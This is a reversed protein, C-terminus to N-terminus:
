SGEVRLDPGSSDQLHNNVMPDSHSGLILLFIPLCLIQLSWVVLLLPMSSKLPGAIFVSNPDEVPLNEPINISVSCQAMRSSTM